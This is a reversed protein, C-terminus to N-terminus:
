TNTETFSCFSCTYKPGYRTNLYEKVTLSITLIKIKSKKQFAAGSM